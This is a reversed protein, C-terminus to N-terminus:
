CRYRRSKWCLRSRRRSPLWIAANMCTATEATNKSGAAYIFTLPSRPVIGALRHINANLQGFTVSQQPIPLLKLMHRNSLLQLMQDKTNDVNAVLKDDKFLASGEYIFNQEDARFVTLIPDSYRSYVKKM